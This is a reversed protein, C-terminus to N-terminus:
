VNEDLQSPDDVHIESNKAFFKEKREKVIESTFKHVPKLLNDLAKRYGLITWIFDNELIPRLFKRVFLDGIADISERYKQSGEVNRLKVGMATELIQILFYYILSFFIRKPKNFVM